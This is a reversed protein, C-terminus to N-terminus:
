NYGQNGYYGGSSVYIPDSSITRLLISLLNGLSLGSGAAMMMNGNSAGMSSGLYKGFVILAIGIPLLILATRITKSKYWVKGERHEAVAVGFGRAWDEREVVQEVSYRCEKRTTFAQYGEWEAATADRPTKPKRRVM